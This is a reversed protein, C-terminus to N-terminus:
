IHHLIELKVNQIDDNQEKGLCDLDCQPASNKHWVGVTNTPSEESLDYKMASHPVTSQKTAPTKALLLLLLLLLLTGSWTPATKCVAFSDSTSVNGLM